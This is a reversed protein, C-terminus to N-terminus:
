RLSSVPRLAPTAPQLEGACGTGFDDLPALPIRKKRRDHFIASSPPLTSCVLSASNIPIALPPAPDGSGIGRDFTAKKKRNSGHQCNHRNIAQKICQNKEYRLVTM